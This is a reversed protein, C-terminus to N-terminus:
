NHPSAVIQGRPPTAVRTADPTRAGASRVIRPGQSASTASTLCAGTTCDFYGLSPPYRYSYAEEPLGQYPPYFDRRYNEEIGYYRSGVRGLPKFYRVRTHCSIAGGHIATECNEVYPPKYPTGPEYFVRIRRDHAANGSSQWWFPYPNNTAFTEQGTGGANRQVLSNNNITTYWTPLRDPEVIRWSGVAAAAPWSTMNKQVAMGLGVVTKGNWNGALSRSRFFVPGFDVPYDKLRWFTTAVNGDTLELAGLAGLQWSFAQSRTQKPAMTEPHVKWGHDLTSGSGGNGFQHEVYECETFDYIQEEPSAYSGCMWPLAVTSNAVTSWGNTLALSELATSSLTLYDVVEEIPATTDLQDRDHWVSRLVWLSTANGRSLRKLTRGAASRNFTRQVSQGNGVDVMKYVVRVQSGLPALQIRGQGNLSLTNAVNSLPWRESFDFQGDGRRNLLFVALDGSVFAMQDRPEGSMFVLQDPLGESSWLVNEHAQSFLYGKSAERAGYAIFQSFAARDRVLQYGDAYGLFSEPILEGKAFMAMTYAAYELDSSVAVRTKREFEADSVADRDGLAYRVLWQLATSYPSVRLSLQESLTLHADGGAQTRARGASGVVTRYHVRTSRAEVTVMQGPSPHGINVTYTNGSVTAPYTQGGVTATVQLPAGPALEIVDGTLRLSAQPVRPQSGTVRVRAAATVAKPAFSTSYRAAYRSGLIAAASAFVVLTAALGLGLKSIKM